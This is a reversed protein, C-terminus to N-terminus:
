VRKLATSAMEEIAEMSSRLHRGLRHTVKPKLALLRKWEPHGDVRSAQRACRGWAFPGHRRRHPHCICGCSLAGPTGKRRGQHKRHKLREAERGDNSSSSEKKKGPENWEAHANHCQTLCGQNESVPRQARRLFPPKVAEALAARGPSCGIGAPVFSM